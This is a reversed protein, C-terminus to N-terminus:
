ASHKRLSNGSQLERMGRNQRTEDFRIGKCALCPGQKGRQILNHQSIPTFTDGPRYRKRSKAIHGYHQILSNVLAQRWRGQPEFPAWKVPQRSQIIYSNVVAIDLLFSWALCRWSGKRIHHDYHFPARLQDGIDVAGMEDNYEAAFSPIWVTLVAETSFYRKVQRAQPKTSTPRKRIRAEFETERYATTLFLM